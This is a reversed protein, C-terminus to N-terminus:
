CSVRKVAFRQGCDPLVCVFPLDKGLTELEPKVMERKDRESTNMELTDLDSQDVEPLAPSKTLESCPSAVSKGFVPTDSELADTKSTDNEPTNMEPIDMEPIDMEPTDMEPKDMELTDIETTAPSKMAESRRHRKNRRSSVDNSNPTRLPSHSKMKQVKRWDQTPTKSLSDELFEDSQDNKTSNNQVM